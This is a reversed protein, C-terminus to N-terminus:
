RPQMARATADDPQWIRGGDTSSYVGLTSTAAYLRAPKRRSDAALAIVEGLKPLGGAASSWTDGGDASRQVSEYSTGVYVIGPRVSSDVALSLAYRISEAARWTKGGDTSRVLKGQAAFITGRRTRDVALARAPIASMQRWRDGGDGSRFIGGPTAAWLVGPHRRRDIALAEVSHGALGGGGATWTTGGDTSRRVEGTATGVYITAPRRRDDIAISVVQRAAHDAVVWEPAGPLLKRLAGDEAAAYVTGTRDAAVARVRGRRRRAPLKTWARGGNTTEFIGGHGTGGYAVRPTRPDVALVYTLGGGPRGWMEAAVAPHFTLLLTLAARALPM